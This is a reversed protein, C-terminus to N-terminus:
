GVGAPEVLISGANFFGYGGDEVVGSVVQKGGAYPVLFTGPGTNILTAGPQGPVPPPDYDDGSPPCDVSATTGNSGDPRWTVELEGDGADTITVSWNIAPIVYDIMACGTHSAFAVNGWQMPGTATWVKKGRENRRARLTTNITGTGSHTAFRGEGNLDLTVAYVDSLKCLDDALQKSLTELSGIWDSRALTTERDGLTKGTAKDVIAIHVKADGGPAAAITGRLQVEGLIFNRTVRSAPDMYPSLEFEKLMDARRDVEILATGCDGSAQFVDTMMMDNIGGSATDWDRDGTSGTVDLIEVAVRGPTVNGLEQVFAAQARRSPKRRRKPATLSARKRKQGAELSVAIRKQVLKRQKSMVTGVVLYAGPPLSLSFTGARGVTRVAAVAGTSGNIARVDAQAGKPVKVGLSGAFTGPKDAAHALTAPLAVMALGVALFTQPMM